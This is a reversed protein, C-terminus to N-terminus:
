EWRDIWYVERGLNTQVRLELGVRGRLLLGAAAHGAAAKIGSRRVHAEITKRYGHLDSRVHEPFLGGGSAGRRLDDFCGQLLLFATNQDERHEVSFWNAPHDAIGVVKAYDDHLGWHYPASGGNYMYWTVPCRNDERDWKVIPPADMDAATVLAAFSGRAPLRVDINNARPLVERVFRTFTYTKRSMTRQQGLGAFLGLDPTRKPKWALVCDDLTAFRRQFSAELGLDKVAQAAAAVQGQKPAAQPRQYRLPHMKEDFFRKITATADGKQIGDLVTSIISTNVHAWGVARQAGVAFWVADAKSRESRARKYNEAAELLWRTPAIFKVSRDFEGVVFLDLAQRITNLSYRDLARRLMQHEQLSRAEAQAPNAARFRRDKIRVSFHSWTKGRARDHNSPLGLSLDNSYLRGIIPRRNIISRMKAVARRFGTHALNEPWLVPERVGQADLVVLGGYTNIFRRCANCDYHQRHMVPLQRLLEEFLGRSDVRFIIASLDFQQQMKERLEDYAAALGDKKAFISM